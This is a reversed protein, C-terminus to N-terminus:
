VGKLTLLNLRVTADVDSEGVAADATVPTRLTVAATLTATLSTFATVFGATFADWLGGLWHAKIAATAM